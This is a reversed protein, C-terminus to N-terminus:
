SLNREHAVIGPYGGERVLKICVHGIWVVGEIDLVQVSDVLTYNLVFGEAPDQAM